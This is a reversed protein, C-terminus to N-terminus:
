RSRKIIDSYIKELYELPFNQWDEIDSFYEAMEKSALIKSLLLKEKPTKAATDPKKSIEKALPPRQFVPISNRSIEINLTDKSWITNIRAFAEESINRSIKAIRSPSMFQSRFINAARSPNMQEFVFAAKAVPMQVHGLIQAANDIRLSESCLIEAVRDSPVEVVIQPKKNLEYKSSLALMVKHIDIGDIDIIEAIRHPSLSEHAFIQMLRKDDLDRSGIAVKVKERSTQEYNLCYSIKSISIAKENLISGFVINPMNEHALIQATVEHLLEERGLIEAIAEIALAGHGLAMASKGIEMLNIIEAAAKRDMHSFFLSTQHPSIGEHCLIKASDEPKKREFKKAAIEYAGKRRAAGSKIDALATKVLPFVLAAREDTLYKPQTLIRSVRLARPFTLMRITKDVSEIEVNDQRIYNAINATYRFTRRLLSLHSSSLEFRKKTTLGGYLRFLKM